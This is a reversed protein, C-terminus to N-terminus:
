RDRPLPADKPFRSQEEATRRPRVSRRLVNGSITATCPYGLCGISKRRATPYKEQEKMFSLYLDACIEDVADGDNGFKM